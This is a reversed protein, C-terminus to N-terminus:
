SRLNVVTQMMENAVKITEGTTIQINSLSTSTNLELSADTVTLINAATSNDITRSTYKSVSSWVQILDGKSDV